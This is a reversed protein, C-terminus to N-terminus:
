KQRIIESFTKRKRLFYEVVISQNIFGHLDKLKKFPLNNKKKWKTTFIWKYFGFHAYLVARFSQFDSVFLSKVAFIGDLMLRFFIKYFRQAPHLNKALLILNNRFNLYTKRYSGQPLTGGGLHFVNSRHCFKITWGARQMRWCLDIEEQHAFFDGDLGGADLWAKRRVFLCAGSAWFVLADSDYQGNDKEVTDFVRGRAFAYGFKDLYGGAAGAYEFADPHQLSLIKPQIAGITSDAAAMSVLASLWGPPVEVDSNLLVFYDADAQALAKNYGEAYGWNQGLDLITVSPFHQILWDLSGDTSGNDAVITQLDPYATAMISPLYKELYKKGNYNLIVVAVSENM